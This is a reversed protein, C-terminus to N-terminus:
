DGSEDEVDSVLNRFGSHIDSGSLVKACLWQMTISLRQQGLM